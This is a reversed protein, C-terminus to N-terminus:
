KTLVESCKHFYFTSLMCSYILLVGGQGLPRYPLDLSSQVVYGTAKAIIKHKVIIRPLTEVNTGEIMVM